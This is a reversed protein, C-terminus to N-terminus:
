LSPELVRTLQSDRYDGEEGRSLSRIVRSLALLSKKKCGVEKSRADYAYNEATSESGALDMLVEQHMVNVARLLRLFRTSSIM